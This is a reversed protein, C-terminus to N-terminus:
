LSRDIKIVAKGRIGVIVEKSHGLDLDLDHAHDRDRDALRDIDGAVVKM